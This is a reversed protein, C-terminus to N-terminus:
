SLVFSGVYLPMRGCADMVFLSAKVDFSTKITSTRILLVHVHPFLFFLIEGRASLCTVQGGLGIKRKESPPSFFVLRPFVQGERWGSLFSM